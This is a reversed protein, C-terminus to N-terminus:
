YRAPILHPVSSAAAACGMMGSDSMMGSSGMKRQPWGMQGRVAQPITVTVVLALATLWMFINRQM